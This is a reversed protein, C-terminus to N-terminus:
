PPATLVPVFLLIGRCPKTTDLQRYVIFEENMIQWEEARLNEEQHLIHTWAAPYLLALQRVGEEYLDLAHPSAAGVM